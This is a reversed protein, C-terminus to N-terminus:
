SLATWLSIPMDEHVQREHVMRLYAQASPEDDRGALPALVELLEAVLDPSLVESGDCLKPLLRQRLQQDILRNLGARGVELGHFVYVAIEDRLRYSIRARAGNRQLVDQVTALQELLEELAGGHEGSVRALETWSTARPRLVAPDLLDPLAGDEEVRAAAGPVTRLDAPTPLFIVNARDLVRQSFALTSEDMNVTGVVCLNEPLAVRDAGDDVLLDARVQRNELQRSEVVSLWHALYHEVRALNLEDLVLVHVRDSSAAALAHDGLVGHRYGGSLDRYGVISTGDTWSPEVPVVRVAAGIDELLRALASKGTGTPGALICFPKSRLSLLFAELLEDSYQLGRLKAARALADVAESLCEILEYQEDAVQGGTGEDSSTTWSSAGVDGLLGTMHRLLATTCRALYIGQVTRLGPDSESRSGYTNLPYYKPANAEIEDRIEHGHEAILTAIPLPEAFAVYADLDVRYYPGMGAWNGPSPPEEDVTRAPAAVFSRGLIRTDTSGDPWRNRVWHLVLDGPRPEKMIAYRHRGGADRCPSWLCTGLEWGPGGHSHDLSTIEVWTGAVDRRRAAFHGLPLAPPAGTYVQRRLASRDADHRVGDALEAVFTAHSTPRIASPGSPENGDDHQVRWVAASRSLYFFPMAANARRDPRLAAMIATFADAFSGFGIREPTAEGRELLDLAVLLAVRMYYPDRRARSVRRLAERWAESPGAEDSLQRVTLIGGEHALRFAGELGERFLAWAAAKLRQPFRSPEGKWDAEFGGSNNKDIVVDVEGGYGGEELDIRVARGSELAERDAQLADLIPELFKSRAPYEVRM